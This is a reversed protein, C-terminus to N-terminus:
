PARGGIRGCPSHSGGSGAEPEGAPLPMGVIVFALAALGLFRYFQMVQGEVTELGAIVPCKRNLSGFIPPLRPSTTFGTM